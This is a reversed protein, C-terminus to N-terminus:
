NDKIDGRESDEREKEYVLLKVKWDPLAYEMLLEVKMHKVGEELPDISFVTSTFKKEEEPSEYVGKLSFAQNAFRLSLSNLQNYFSSFTDKAKDFDDTTLLVAQFSYRDRKKAPYKTIMCEESGRIKLLSSYDTSQPNAVLQDGIYHQFSNPYDIIVNEVDTQFTNGTTSKLQARSTFFSNLLISFLLIKALKKM